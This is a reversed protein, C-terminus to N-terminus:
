RASSCRPPGSASCASRATLSPFFDILMIKIGNISHFMVAAVLGLELLRVFPNEYAAIVKNYAEPGWGIVAPTWWTPSSSSSSPRCRHGPPVAM